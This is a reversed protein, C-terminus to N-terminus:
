AARLADHTAQRLQMTWFGIARCDGRDEAERLAKACIARRQELASCTSRSSDRSAFWNRIRKLM